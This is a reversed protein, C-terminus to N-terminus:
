VQRVPMGAVRADGGGVKVLDGVGLLSEQVGGDGDSARRDVAALQGGFGPRVQQPAEVSGGGLPGHDGLLPRPRTGGVRRAAGGLVVLPDAARKSVMWSATRTLAEHALGLSTASRSM